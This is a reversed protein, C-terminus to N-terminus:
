KAQPPSPLVSTLLDPPFNAYVALNPIFRFDAINSTILPLGAGIATAAILADNIMLNHSKSFTSILRRALESATENIEIIKIGSFAKQIFSVERKNFAGVILEMMAITPMALHYQYEKSFIPKLEGSGRLADILICTDCLYKKNPEM